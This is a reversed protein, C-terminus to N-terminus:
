KTRLMLAQRTNDGYVGVEDGHIGYRQQFRAVAQRVKTDYRGNIAGRDYIQPIQLLRVQLEYVGHGSDGPRLVGTGPIEPLPATSGPEPQDPQGLSAPPATPASHGNTLLSSALLVGSVAGLGFVGAVRAHRPDISRRHKRGHKQSPPHVLPPPMPTAPTPAGSRAVPPAWRQPRATGQRPHVRPTFFPSPEGLGPGGYEAISPEAAQQPSPAQPGRGRAWLPEVVSAEVAGRAHGPLDGDETTTSPHQERDLAHLDARAADLAQLVARFSARIDQAPDEASALARRPEADDFAM